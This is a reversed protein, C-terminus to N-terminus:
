IVYVLRTKGSGAAGPNARGNRKVQLCCMRMGHLWLISSVSSQGWEIYESSELLWQGTGHLLNKSLDEHHSRYEIESM